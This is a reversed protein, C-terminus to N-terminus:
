KAPPALVPEAYEPRLSIGHPFTHMPFTVYIDEGAAVRQREEPTLTWRGVMSHTGDAHLVRAMTITMFEDQEEAVTVEVSVSEGLRPAVPRM